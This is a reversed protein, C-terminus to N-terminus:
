PASVPGSSTSAALPGNAREYDDRTMEYRDHDSLDDDVESALVCGVFRYGAKGAVHQSALNGVKTQLNITAVGLETLAYASLLRVARTVLGRNRAPRGIWYGIEDPLLASRAVRKAGIRHLGVCGLLEDNGPETIALVIDTRGHQTRGVLMMFDALHSRTYPWPIRTWKAIDPDSTLYGYITEGDSQVVDRLVVVGDELRRPPIM